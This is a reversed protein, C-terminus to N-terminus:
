LPNHALKCTKGKHCKGKELQDKCMKTKRPKFKIGHGEDELMNEEVGEEGFQEAIEAIEELGEIHKKMKEIHGHNKMKKGECDLYLDEICGDLFVNKNYNGHMFPSVKEIYLRITAMTVGDGFEVEAL